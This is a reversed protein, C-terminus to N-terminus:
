ISLGIHVCVVALYANMQYIKSTKPEVFKENLKTIQGRLATRQEDICNLSAISKGSLEQQFLFAIDIQCRTDSRICSQM